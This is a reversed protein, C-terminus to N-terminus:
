VTERKRGAVEPGILPLDLEVRDHEVKPTIRGRDGRELRILGYGEMTKLTRSLNSKARSTIQALEDLSGPAQEAIIRLLERNGASLVKAFSETSTFWVKPEGGALRREGRAIRMTRAKMEAYSAIGVKLTTMPDSGKERLVADMLAWFDALLTAADTYEYPKITRLRHRHDQPEGRRRMAIPHANDFGVLREGDPGHLTLSYDLGHPKEPSVPM